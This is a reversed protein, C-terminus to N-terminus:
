LDATIIVQYAYLMVFIFTFLMFDHQNQVFYLVFRRKNDGQLKNNGGM